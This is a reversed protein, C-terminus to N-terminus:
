LEAIEKLKEMIIKHDAGEDDATDVLEDINEALVFFIVRAEAKLLPNTMAKVEVLAMRWRSKKGMRWNGRM